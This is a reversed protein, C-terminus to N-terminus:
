AVFPIFKLNTECLDIRIADWLARDLSAILDFCQWFDEKDVYEKFIYTGHLKAKSNLYLLTRVTKSLFLGRERVYHDRGNEVMTFNRNGDDYKNLMIVAQLFRKGHNMVSQCADAEDPFLDLFARINITYETARMKRLNGRFSILENM